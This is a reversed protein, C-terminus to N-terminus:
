EGKRINIEDQMRLPKRVDWDSDIRDLDTRDVWWMVAEFAHGIQDGEMIGTDDINIGYHKQLLKDITTIRKSYCNECIFHTITGTGSKHDHFVTYVEMEDWDMDVKCVDCETINDSM